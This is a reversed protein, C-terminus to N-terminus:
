FRDADTLKCQFSGSFKAIAMADVQQVQGPGLDAVSAHGTGYRQSGSVFEVTILYSRPRPGKNEIRVTAVPNGAPTTTCAVFSVEDDISPAAPSATTPLVYRIFFFGFVLLAALPIFVLALIKGTSMGKKPPPQHLPPPVPASPVIPVTM